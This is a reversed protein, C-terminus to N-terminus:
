DSRVALTLVGAGRKRNHLRRGLNADLSAIATRVFRPRPRHPRSGDDDAANSEWLSGSNRRCGEEVGREGSPEEGTTSTGTREFETYPMAFLRLRSAIGVKRQDQWEGRRGQVLVTREKKVKQWGRAATEPNGGLYRAKGGKRGEGKGGDRM